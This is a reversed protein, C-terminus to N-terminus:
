LDLDSDIIKSLKEDFKKDISGDEPIIKEKEISEEIQRLIKKEQRETKIKIKEEMEKEKEQMKKAAENKKKIRNEREEAIYDAYNVVEGGKYPVTVLFRLISKNLKLSHELELLSLPNYEFRYVVYFGEEQKVIPYALDRRGWIDESIIKGKAKSIEEKFETLTKQIDNDSMGGSVLLMIEYNKM